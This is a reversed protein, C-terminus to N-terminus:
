EADHLLTRRSEEDIGPLDRLWARATPPDSLNWRWFVGMAARTRVSPDRVQGVWEGATAPDAIGLVHAYSATARDRVTSAPFQQIWEAVAAPDKMAWTTVTGTVAKEQAKGPPLESAWTAAALPDSKSLEEAVRAALSGTPDASFDACRQAAEASRGTEALQVILRAEAAHRMEGEPLAAAWKRAAEEDRQLWSGFAERRPDRRRLLDANPDAEDVTARSTLWDLAAEADAAAWTKAVTCLTANAAEKPLAEAWRAAAEPDHSAYGAAIVGLYESPAQQLEGPSSKALAAAAVRAAQEPDRAAMARAVTGLLRPDSTKESLALLEGTGRREAEAVVANWISNAEQKDALTAALDAAALPNVKALGLRWGSEAASRSPGEPFREIWQRAANPDSEALQMVLMRALEKQQKPDKLTLAHALVDDPKKRALAELVWSRVERNEDGKFLVDARKLWGMAAGPDLELWRHVAGGVLAKSLEWPLKECQKALAVLGALDGTLLSFDGAELQQLAAFLDHECRLRDNKHALAMLVTATADGSRTKPSATSTRSEASSVDNQGLGRQLDASGFGPRRLWVTGLAFGVVACLILGGLFRVSRQKLFWAM